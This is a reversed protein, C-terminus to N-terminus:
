HGNPHFQLHQERSGEIHTISIEKWGVLGGQRVFVIITGWNLRGISPPATITGHERDLRVNRSSVYDPGGTVVSPQADNPLGSGFFLTYTSSLTLDEHPAAHRIVKYKLQEGERLVVLPVGCCLQSPQNQRAAETVIELAPGPGFPQLDFAIHGHDNGNTALIWASESSKGHTGVCTATGDPEVMLMSESTTSYITKQPNSLEATRFWSKKKRVSIRASEGVGLSTRSAQLELTESSKLASDMLWTCGILSALVLGVGSAKLAKM